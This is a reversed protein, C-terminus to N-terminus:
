PESGRLDAYILPLSTLLSEVSLFSLTHCRVKRGRFFGHCEALPSATAVASLLAALSKTKLIKVELGKPSLIKCVCKASGAGTAPKWLRHPLPYPEFSRVKGNRCQSKLRVELNTQLKRARDKRCGERM